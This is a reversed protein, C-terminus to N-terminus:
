YYPYTNSVEGSHGKFKKTDPLLMEEEINSNNVNRTGFEANGIPSSTHNLSNQTRINDETNKRRKRDKLCEGLINYFILYSIYSILISKGHTDPCSQARVGCPHVFDLTKLNFQGLYWALKYCLM